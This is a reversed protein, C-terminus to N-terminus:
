KTEFENCSYEPESTQFAESAMIVHERDHTKRSRGGSLEASVFFFFM